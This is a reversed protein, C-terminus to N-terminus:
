ISLKLLEISELAYLHILSQSSTNLVNFGLDLDHDREKKLRSNEDM